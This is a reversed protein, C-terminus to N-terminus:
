HCPYNENIFTKNSVCKGKIPGEPGKYFSSRNESNPIHTQRAKRSSSFSQNSSPRPGKQGLSQGKRLMRLTANSTREPKRTEKITDMMDDDEVISNLNGSSAAESTVRSFADKGFVSLRILEEKKLTVDTTDEESATDTDTDHDDDDEFNRAFEHFAEADERITPAESLRNSNRAANFFASTRRRLNPRLKVFTESDNEKASVGASNDDVRDNWKFSLLQATNEEHVVDLSSSRNMRNTGNQMEMLSDLNVPSPLITVSGQANEKAVKLAEIWDAQLDLASVVFTEGDVSFNPAALSKEFSVETSRSIRFEAKKHNKQHCHELSKYWLITLSGNPALELTTHQFSQDKQRLCLASGQFVGKKVDLKPPEKDAGNLGAVDMLDCVIDEIQIRIFDCWLEAEEESNAELFLTCDNASQAFSVIFQGPLLM